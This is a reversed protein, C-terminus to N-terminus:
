RPPTPSKPGPRNGRGPSTFDPNTTIEFGFYPTEAQKGGPLRALGSPQSAGETAMSNLCAIFTPFIIKECAPGSACEPLVPTNIKNNKVCSVDPSM